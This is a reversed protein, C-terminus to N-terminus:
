GLTKQGLKRMVNYHHWIHRALDENQMAVFDKLSLGDKMNDYHKLCFSWGLGDKGHALLILKTRTKYQRWGRPWGKIKLRYKEDPPSHLNM